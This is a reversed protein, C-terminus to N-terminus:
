NAIFDIYDLPLQLISSERIKAKVNISM